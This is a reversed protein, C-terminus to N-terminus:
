SNAGSSSSVIRGPKSIRFRRPPTNILHRAHRRKNTPALLVEPCRKEVVEPLLDKRTIVGLVRQPRPVVLLHRLGLTRFIAYVKTLSADASVSYPTTNVFPGIDLYMDLDEGSLALDDVTFRKATPHRIFDEAHHRLARGQSEALSATGQFDQRSQLLVLLDSRLVTGLVGVHGSVVPFANHKCRRLVDVLRGVREIRQLTVPPRRGIADTATLHRYFREPSPELYPIRKIAMHIDSISSNFADGVAKAILLVLMVLPLLKLNNTIELMVVCLSVTMRMSGSMFSAAGLVAYTGEDIREQGYLKVVFMGVLRGYAAGCMISPVFLGTPVTVGYTIVALAYFLILYTILSKATFEGATSSSFLNRIADDQTNFFLTALDNYQGRTEGEPCNFRIFNGYHHSPRPCVVDPNEPCASCATFFPVLYSCLSTLGTIVLVEIVRARPGGRRWLVAKRWVTLYMNLQNFLAGLLGGLVGLMAMPVLEVTAYDEQAGPGSIDFIIFGGSSFAGCAGKACWQMCARVTVAVVATTFLCRWLLAGRWWTAEELAFLVGGVPSRFAAAVGAAAGCTVLDRRDRDNAAPRGAATSLLSALCAGIHVMPGEKGLALGGAVAGVSALMKAILTRPLLAGPIDVGNLYAKVDAIGSGAASPAYYNVLLTSSLVLVLNFLTYVIFGLVYSVRMVGFTAAFKLGAANEVGLNIVFAALGTCLGLVLALVWKVTVYALKDLRGRSAQDTRFVANEAVEYDLSEFEATAPHIFSGGAGAGETRDLGAEGVEMDLDDASGAESGLLRARVGHGRGSVGSAGGGGLARMSVGPEDGDEEGEEDEEGEVEEEDGRADELVHTKGNEGRGAM